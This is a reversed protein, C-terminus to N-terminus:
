TLQTAASCPGPLPACMSGTTDFSFCIEVAPPGSNPVLCGGYHYIGDAQSQHVLRFGKGSASKGSGWAFHPHARLYAEREGLTRQGTPDGVILLGKEDDALPKRMFWNQGGRMM